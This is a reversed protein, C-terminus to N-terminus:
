IDGFMACSFDLREKINTSIATLQLVRGCQEAISMFRNQFISLRILDLETSNTDEKIHQIAIRIDGCDTIKAECNPEVVITCSPDIIIAPGSIDDHAYLEEILYVPTDVFGQEFYCKVK